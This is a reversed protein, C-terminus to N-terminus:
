EKPIKPLDDHTLQQNESLKRDKPPYVALREIHLGRFRDVLRSSINKKLLPVANDIFGGVAEDWHAKTQSKLWGPEIFNKYVWGIALLTAGTVEISGRDISTVVFRDTQRALAQFGQQDRIGTASIAQEYLRLDTELSAQAMERFLNEWMRTTLPRRREIGIFVPMRIADPNAFLSEIPVGTPEFVM